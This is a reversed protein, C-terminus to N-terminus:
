EQVFEASFCKEKREQENRKKRPKHTKYETGHRSNQSM